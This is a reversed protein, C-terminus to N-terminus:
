EVPLAFAVYADGMPGGLKGGGTAAIVIYQRGDVEYTAPPAFGGWPLKASWLERGTQADFARLKEDRTGACFVLGGATVMPGGFNETGTKPIGQATLEPYEGLPVQWLLKGTNLDLCNLTGWPPTNGPYGEQDLLKPYGNYSYQPRDARTTPLKADGRDRVFLFDLLAQTDAEPMEPTAPMLNRGTKLLARVDADKLRHRLGRLPPATGAGVRDAGHCASCNQQYLMEGRTPPADAARMPEPDDRFVTVMWPLENASVYLRGSTPDSCAGTWEAGGHIGFLVTPKGEAFPEFWGFNAGAVRQSIYEHAEDTRRTIDNTTFTQRAFPQPWEVDPQYAATREGPLTTTPARRLRFPYIPKGSVRDLLLTNGLKTVSAVVDIQRGERTITTLVPPAPIDLDWIDHRIEQFHWLRKGTRADLAILCNSFLNDGQHSNGHFNPKPSGTTLYAIGRAEDLAMGGWCNAGGTVKDWTDFGFEGAQPVTHFTWRQEGTVADFAWADKEWGPVIITREFVVPAVTSAGFEGHAAGPLKKRGQEGFSELPKGTKPNLAYLYAGATFFIRAPEDKVGAWHMLGRFAPRGEGEPKFRWLEKGTAAQVAVLNKGVTPVYMMDGVIIPNCQINGTGDQSHYAWAMQLRQVNTRNIQTLASYRRSGADGHSRTWSRFADAAPLQNHPTLEAPKAAPITQYLPLKAREEAREVAWYDTAHGFCVLSLSAAVVYALKGSYVTSRM